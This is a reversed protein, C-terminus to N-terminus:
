NICDEEDRSEETHGAAPVGSIYNMREGIVDRVKEFSLYEHIKRQANERIEIYRAKQEYLLRIYEAAQAADADAWRSGGPYPGIRKQLTILRYKVLCACTKDMFEATASWNTCIVPTGLAMAEAMPLGFGESRHLSILVDSVAILSEVEARSMNETLFYVNEYDRLEEKLKQLERGGKLHNVKVVLGAEKNETPFAQKYASIAGAPNKRESISKFDYMVLYLFQKEPLHFHNRGYHEEKEARIIYPVRIVPKETEKRISACIFESPAWIEDVTEICPAWEKPFDELEWLWYGIQYRGDLLEQPLAGYIEAWVNPNIHLLNISYVAQGAIRHEWRSDSQELGGPSDVQIICFPVAAKELIEALIRMSQGLGTEAKIDGILNIGAPYRGSQYPAVTELRKKMRRNNQAGLLSKMRVIVEDPLIRKAIDKIGMCEGMIKRDRYSRRSQCGVEEM